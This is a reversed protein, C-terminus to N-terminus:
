RRTGAGPSRWMEWRLVALERFARLIVRISAGTPTGGVRPYHRVGREVIPFGAEHVRALLETSIMAGSSTLPGIRTLVDRSLLKFACDIDRVPIRFAVGVLLGWLWTNVKRGLHDARDIRYGVVADSLEAADLFGALERLDFQGDGDSFFVWDLDASAFGTRLAAGYGENVPHHVVRVEAHQEALRDAIASTADRSGDDVVIVEFRDLGFTRLAELGNAVTREINAEENFAPFFVSLERVRM